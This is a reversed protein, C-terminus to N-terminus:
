NRGLVRPPVWATQLRRHSTPWKKAITKLLVCCVSARQADCTRLRQRVLCRGPSRRVTPHHWGSDPTGAPPMRGGMTRARAHGVRVAFPLRAGPAVRLRGCVAAPVVSGDVDRAQRPPHPRRPHRPRPRARLSCTPMRAPKSPRGAADGRRDSHVLSAAMARRQQRPRGRAARRRQNKSRPHLQVPWKAEQTGLGRRDTPWRM